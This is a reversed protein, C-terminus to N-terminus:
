FMEGLYIVNFFEGAFPSVKSRLKHPAVVAKKARIELAHFIKWGFRSYKHSNKINLFYLSSKMSHFTWEKGRISIFCYYISKLVKNLYESLCNLNM